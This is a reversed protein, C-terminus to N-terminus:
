IQNGPYGSQWCSRSSIFRVILRIAGNCAPWINPNSYVQTRAAHALFQLKMSQTSALVHRLMVKFYDRRQLRQEAEQKGAVDMAWAVWATAWVAWATDLAEAVV